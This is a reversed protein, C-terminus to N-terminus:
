RRCVGFAPHTPTLGGDNGPNSGSQDGQFFGTVAIGECFILEVAPGDIEFTIAECAEFRGSDLVKAAAKLAEFARGAVILDARQCTPLKQRMTLWKKM